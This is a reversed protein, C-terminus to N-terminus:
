FPAINGPGAPPLAIAQYYAVVNPRLYLYWYAIPTGLLVFFILGFFNAFRPTQAVQLFMAIGALCAIPFYVLLLVRSSVRQKHLTIAIATTYVAVISLLIVLARARALFLEGSVQPYNIMYGHNGRALTVAALLFGLAQLTAVLMILSLLAPRPAIPQRAL